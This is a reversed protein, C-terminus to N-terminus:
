DLADFVRRLNLAERRHLRQRLGEAQKESDLILELLAIVNDKTQPSIDWVALRRELDERYRQEIPLFANAFEWFNLSQDEDTDFRNM